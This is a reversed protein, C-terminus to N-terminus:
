PNVGQRLAELRRKNEYPRIFCQYDDEPVSGGAKQRIDEGVVLRRTLKDCIYDECKACNNKGRAIVCPRVPCGNDILRPNNAMCGDGLISEPSLRFGFYETM